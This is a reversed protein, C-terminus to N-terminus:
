ESPSINVVGHDHGISGYVTVTNFGQETSPLSDVYAWQRLLGRNDTAAVMYNPRYLDEPADGDESAYGTSLQFYTQSGNDYWPCNYIDYFESSPDCDSTSPDPPSVQRIASEPLLYVGSGGSLIEVRIQNMPLSNEDFVGWQFLILTGYGDDYGNLDANWAITIEEPATLTATAPADVGHATVCGAGFAVFGLLTLARNM